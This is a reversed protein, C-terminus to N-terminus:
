NGWPLVIGGAALAVAEREQRWTTELVSGVRLEERYYFLGGFLAPVAGYLAASRWDHGGFEHLLYVIPAWGLTM